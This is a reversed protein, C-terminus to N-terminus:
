SDVISSFDLDGLGNNVTNKYKDIVVNSLKLELGQMANAAILLDKLMLNSSFGPKFNKDAPSEPGVGKLPSYNNLAWCSGTSTSIVEYLINPDLKSKNALKIVEGLGTM